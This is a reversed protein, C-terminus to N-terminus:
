SKCGFAALSVTYPDKGAKQDEGKMGQEIELM